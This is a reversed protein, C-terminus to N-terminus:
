GTNHNYTYICEYTQKFVSYNGFFGMDTSVDIPSPLELLLALLGADTVMAKEIDQMMNTRALATDATKSYVISTIGITLVGKMDDGSSSFISLQEKREEEDIVMCAPFQNKDLEEPHSIKMKDSVYAVNTLFGNAVTIDELISIVEQIIDYRVSMISEETILRDQGDETLLRDGDETIIYTTAM